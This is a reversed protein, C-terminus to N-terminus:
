TLALLNTATRRRSALFNLDPLAAHIGDRPGKDFFAGFVSALIALGMLLIGRESGEMDLVDARELV